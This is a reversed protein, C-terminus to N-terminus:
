SNFIIKCFIQLLYRPLTRILMGGKFIERRRKQKLSKMVIMMMGLLICYMIVM